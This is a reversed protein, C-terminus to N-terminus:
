GSLAVGLEAVLLSEYKIDSYARRAIMHICLTMMRMGLASTM